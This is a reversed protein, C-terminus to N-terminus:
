ANAPVAVDIRRRFALATADDDSTKARMADLLAMKAANTFTKEDTAAAAAARTAPLHATLVFVGRTTSISEGDYAYAGDESLAPLLAPVHEPSMNAVDHLVVVAGDEDRSCGALHRALARQLRGRAEDADLERLNAAACDLTMACRGRAGRRLTAELSARAARLGEPTNAAVLVTPAKHSARRTAVDEVFFEVASASRTVADLARRLTTARAAADADAGGGRGTTTARRARLAGLALAAALAVARVARSRANSRARTARTTTTTATARRRPRDTPRPPPPARAARARRALPRHNKKTARARTRPARRPAARARCRARALSVARNSNLIM